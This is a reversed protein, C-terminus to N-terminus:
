DPNMIDWLGVLPYITIRFSNNTLDQYKLSTEIVEHVEKSVMVEQGTGALENIKYIESDPDTRSMLDETGLIAEKIINDVEIDDEAYVQYTVVTSMAMFNKDHHVLEKSCASFILLLIIFITITIKKM